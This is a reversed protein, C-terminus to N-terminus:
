IHEGGGGMLAEMETAPLPKSFLYGQLEDCQLEKCFQSEDQTEVGEAVVRMNMSHVLEIIARVISSKKVDQNVGQIFSRDLKVDSIPLRQLQNLSSYGTGFDDISIKLGIDRLYLITEIVKEINQMFVGETIEISVYQPDLGTEALVSHVLEKLNGQYFHRASINVSICIKKLGADQWAKNQRCAERFVWSDIGLIFSSEEALPIFKDPPIMGLDPHQWRILAEIGCLLGTAASIKPQYHLSFQPEQLARRLGNELLMKESLASVLGPRYYRYTSGGVEKANYMAIDANRIITEMTDGDQPYTSIGASLSMFLTMGEIIFPETFCGCIAEALEKLVLEDDYALLFVFEDGGLRFVSCDRSTLTLFRGSAQQLLVDGAAHGLTDNIHKFRNFDVFVVALSKCSAASKNGLAHLAVCDKFQHTFELRNPLGTLPDYYALQHLQEESQQLLQAQAQLRENNKRSEQLLYVLSGAMHKINSMLSHLEVIRSDPLRLDNNQKLKLPLNYSASALRRLGRAFSRNMLLAACSALLAFGFLYAFHISYKNFLYSQYNSLPTQVLIMGNGDFESSYLFSADHWSEMYLLKSTPNPLVLTQEATVPTLRQGRWPSVIQNILDRNNSAVVVHNWNVISITYTPSANLDIWQQLTLSHLLLEVPRDSPSSTRHWEDLITRTITEAQEEAYESVEHFSSINNVFLNLLFSFLVIALTYQQLLQLLSVPMRSVTAMGSWKALPSHQYLIEALLANFLRNLVIILVVLKLDSTPFSTHYTYFIYIGPAGIVIWFLLVSFFLKNHYRRLLIGAALAELIGLIPTGPSHFLFVVSGYATVASLLGGRLGFMRVALLVFLSSLSFPIGYLFPISIREALIALLTCIIFAPLRNRNNTTQLSLISM